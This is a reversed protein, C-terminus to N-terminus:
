PDNDADNEQHRRCPLAVLFGVMASTLGCVAGVLGLIGFLPLRSVLSASGQYGGTMFAMSLAFGYVAGAVSATGARPSSVGVSGGAVGWPILTLWSGVFLVRAGVVGLGAGLCVAIGYRLAATM